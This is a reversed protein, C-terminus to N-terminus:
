RKAKEVFHKGLHWTLLEALLNALGFIIVAASVCLYYWRNQDDGPMHYISLLYFIVPPGVFLAVLVMRLIPYLGFIIFVNWYYTAWSKRRMPAFEGVPYVNVIHPFLQRVDRMERVYLTERQRTNYLSGLWLLLAPALAVQLARTLTLLEMTLPTGFISMTAKEPMEVGYM